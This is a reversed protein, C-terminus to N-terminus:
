NLFYFFGHHQFDEQPKHEKRQNPLPHFHRKLAQDNVKLFGGMPDFENSLM